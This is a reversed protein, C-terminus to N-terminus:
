DNLRRVILHIAPENQIMELMTMLQDRWHLIENDVDGRMAALGEALMVVHSSNIVIEGYKPIGALKQRAQEDPIADLWEQYRAMPCTLAPKFCDIVGLHHGIALGYYVLQQSEPKADKDDVFKQNLIFFTVSESM